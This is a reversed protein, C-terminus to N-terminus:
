ETHTSPEEFCVCDADAAFVFQMIDWDRLQTDTIDEQVLENGEQRLSSAKAHLVTAFMCWQWAGNLRQQPAIM